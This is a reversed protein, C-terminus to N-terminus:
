DCCCRELLLVEVGNVVQLRTTKTSRRNKWRAAADRLLAHAAADVLLAQAASRLSPSCRLKRSAALLLANNRRVALAFRRQLRQNNEVITSRTV